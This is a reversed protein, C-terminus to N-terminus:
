NLCFVAYSIRMLSQLESTHEESRASWGRAKAEAALVPELDFFRNSIHILLIGDPKLSRAYIGVAERTLLHLPIADSSFADIVLTDFRGPPQKALELRADGLVNPTDPACHSLFTFKAPDRAIRVMAPDIEFFTWRQGPQRYCSLTGSGLGVIGIAANAGALRDAADLTLGVGSDHGYYTTPDYEHGADTRQLGHLTTGHALRRQHRYSDDTVTYVGFYSRVRMLDSSCVDSSWDSIRMEYATKQKFFFFLFM